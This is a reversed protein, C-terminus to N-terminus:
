ELSFPEKRAKDQMIREHAKRLVNRATDFTLQKIAKKFPLWMFGIHEFSLHVEVTRTKALYFTVEKYVTQKGKRFFYHIEEKFSPDFIVNGIGTEEWIERRLAELDSEGREPHGKPFDWFGTEYHLLLYVPENGHKDEFRYMVAGVSREVPM